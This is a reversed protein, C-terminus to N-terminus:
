AKNGKWSARVLQELTPLDVDALRKIHLCGGGRAHKGLKALLKAHPDLGGKIYLTFQDKRPAFGLVPWEAQKGNAYTMLYRGFGVITTGWMEPKAKTVTKLMAAVKRSDKRVDENPIAALFDAVSAKTLKTKAEAM